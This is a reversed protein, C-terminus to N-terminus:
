VGFLNKLNHMREKEVEESRSQLAKLLEKRGKRQYSIRKQEFIKIFSKLYPINGVGSLFELKSGAFNERLDIYETKTSVNEDDFLKNLVNKYFTETDSDEDSAVITSNEFQQAINKLEEINVNLNGKEEAVPKLEIQKKAM